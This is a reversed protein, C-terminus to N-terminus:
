QNDSENISASGVLAEGEQYNGKFGYNRWFLWTGFALILIILCTVVITITRIKKHQLEIKSSDLAKEYSSIIESQEDLKNLLQRNQKQLENILESQQKKYEDHHSMLSANISEQGSVLNDVGDSIKELVIQKSLPDHGDNEESLLEEETIGLLQSLKKLEDSYPKSKNQEWRAISRASVGIMDALDKQSYNNDERYRKIRAGSLVVHGGM